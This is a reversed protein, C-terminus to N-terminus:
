KKCQKYSIKTKRKKDGWIGGSNTKNRRIENQEM